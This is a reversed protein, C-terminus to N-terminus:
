KDNIIRRMSVRTFPNVVEELIMPTIIDLIGLCSPDTSDNLVLYCM